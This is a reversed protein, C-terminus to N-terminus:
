RNAGVQTRLNKIQQAAAPSIGHAKAYNLVDSGFQQGGAPQTVNQKDFSTIEKKGKPGYQSLITNIADDQARQAKSNGGYNAKLDDLRDKMFGRFDTDMQNMEGSLQNLIGPSNISQPDNKIQQLLGALRSAYSSYETQEQKGLAPNQSGTLLAAQEQNLMGLLQPTDKINGTKVSQLLGNINQVGQLRTQYRMVQPDTLIPTRAGSVTQADAQTAKEGYYGAQARNKAIEPGLAAIQAEVQRQKLQEGADLNQFQMRKVADDGPYQQPLPPLGFRQSTQQAQDWAAQKDEPSTNPDTPVSFLVEKAIAHQQTLANLDMQRFQQATQMALQPNQKTLDALVGQRNLTPNGNQDPVMNNQFAQRTAMQDQFALNKLQNQRMMDAMGMAQLPSEIKPAQQTQYM